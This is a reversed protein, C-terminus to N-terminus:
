MQRITSPVLRANNTPAAPACFAGSLVDRMGASFPVVDLMGACGDSCGVSLIDASGFAPAWPVAAGFCAGRWICLDAACCFSVTDAPMAAIRAPTVLRLAVGADVVRDLLVLRVASV